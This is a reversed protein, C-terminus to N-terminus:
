RVGDQANVDADAALLLQVVESHGRQTAAMLATSEGQLFAFM